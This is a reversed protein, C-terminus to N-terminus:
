KRKRVGPVTKLITRLTLAQMRELTKLVRRNNAIAQALLRHQTQSLAVCRTRGKVKCTWLFYPGRKLQRGRVRRLLPRAVVTGHCIWSSHRLRDLLRQYTPPPCGLQALSAIADPPKM